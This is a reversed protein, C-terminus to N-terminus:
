DPLRWFSLETFKPCVLRCGFRNFLPLRGRLPLSSSVIFSWEIKRKPSKADVVSADIDSKIVAVDAAGTGEVSTVVGEVATVEVARSTVVGRSSFASLSGCFQSITL